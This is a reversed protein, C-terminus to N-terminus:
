DGLSLIVHKMKDTGASVYYRHLCSLETASFRRDTARGTSGASELAPLIFMNKNNHLDKQDVADKDTKTSTPFEDIISM